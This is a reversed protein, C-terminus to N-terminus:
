PTGKVEPVKDLVGVLAAGVGVVSGAGEKGPDTAAGQLHSLNRSRKRKQLNQGAHQGNPCNLVLLRYNPWHM